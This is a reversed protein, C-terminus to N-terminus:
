QGGTMGEQRMATGFYKEAEADTLEFNDILANMVKVPMKSMYDYFTIVKDKWNEYSTDSWREFHAPMEPNLTTTMERIREGVSASSLDTALLEGFRTLFWDRCGPNRMLARFLINGQSTVSGVKGSSDGWGAVPDRTAQAGLDLDYLIFHWRGDQSASRYMRINNLDQNNTYMELMVYELYNEVDVYGRLTQMNAEIALDNNKIYTIMEQWKDSSGKVAKGDSGELLDIDDWEDWGEFRAIAQKSIRERMHYVGWYQGNVYVVAEQSEQYMVSTGDALSGLVADRMFAGQNDQGAARVVVGKYVTDDLNDFLAARFRNDGYEKKAVLRFAKQPFHTRSSRGNLCFYCSQGILQEGDATYIEAFVDYGAGKEGTNLTGNPGILEEYNGSVCIVDVTHSVGFLYTRASVTSPLVGSSWAIAKVVTTQDLQLPGTYIMSTQTPMSGDPTYYIDIGPTGTLEVTVPGDQIGGPASFSVPQAARACAQASNAAGPTLKTFYGYDSTGPVRGYSVNRRQERLLIHDVTVGNADSVVLKEVSDVKLAFPAQLGTTEAESGMLDVRVFGLPAISTGAPFQWKRPKDPDDSLYWGSLDVTQASENALEVWDSAGDVSCVVENIYVGLTNAVASTWTQDFALGSGAGDNAAGPTPLESLRVTGDSGRALVQDAGMEAADVRSVATGMADFLWVTEGKAAVRFPAHLEGDTIEAGSAFVILYGGAPLITDPFTFKCRDYVDDTLTWGALQVDQSSTNYLEIWDSYAGLSDRLTIHNSAMVENIVVAGPVYDPLLSVGDRYVQDATMQSWTGASRNLAYIMGSPMSPIELEEVTTNRNDSLTLMDGDASLPFGAYLKGDDLGVPKDGGYIVVTENPALSIDPFVFSRRFDIGRTLRWGRLSVTESGDNILEIWDRYAGGAPLCVGSNGTMVRLLRVTGEGQAFASAACLLALLACLCAAAALRRVPHKKFWLKM